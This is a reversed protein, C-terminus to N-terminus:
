STEAHLDPIERQGGDGGLVEDTLGAPPAELKRALDETTVLARAFDRIEM